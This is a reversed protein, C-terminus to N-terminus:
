SMLYAGALLLGAWGVHLARVGLPGLRAELQNEPEEVERPPTGVERIEGQAFALVLGATGVIFTLGHVAIEGSEQELDRYIWVLSALFLAMLLAKGGSANRLLAEDAWSRTRSIEEWEAIGPRDGQWERWRLRWEPWRKWLSFYGFHWLMVACVTLVMWFQTDAGPWGIEGM